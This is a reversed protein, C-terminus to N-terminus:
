LPEYEFHTGLSATTSGTFANLGLEGFSATNGLISPGEGPNWQKRVLGGFLNVAYSGLKANADAQPKTTSAVFPLAPAALDASAPDSPEDSNPGALATLTAGVVSHRALQLISPASSTGLGGCYLELIMVRQTGSGGKISVHQADTFNSGDGVAVASWTPVTFIRRAM